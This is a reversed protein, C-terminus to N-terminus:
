GGEGPIQLREKGSDRSLVGMAGYLQAKRGERGWASKEPHM